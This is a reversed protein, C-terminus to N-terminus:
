ARIPSPHVGAIGELVVFDILVNFHVSCQLIFTFFYLHSCLFYLYLYLVQM